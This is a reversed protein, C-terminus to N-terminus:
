IILNTYLPTQYSTQAMCVYHKETVKIESELKFTLSCFLNTAFSDSSFTYAAMKQENYCCMGGTQQRNITFQMVITADRRMIDKLKLM